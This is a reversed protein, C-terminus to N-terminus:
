FEHKISEELSKVGQGSMEKKIVSEYKRWDIEGIELKNYKGGKKDPGLDKAVIYEEYKNQSFNQLMINELDSDNHISVDIDGKKVKRIFGFDMIHVGM